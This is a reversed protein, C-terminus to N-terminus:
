MEIRLKGTEHDTFTIGVVQGVVLGNLTVPASPSLGEVDDYVVYYTKYSNFLDQGRLFYYGWIFLLVSGIVLVATKVERTVKLIM